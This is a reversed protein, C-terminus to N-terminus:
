HGCSVTNSTAESENMKEKDRNTCFGEFCILDPMGYTLPLTLPPPIFYMPNSRLGLMALPWANSRIPIWHMASAMCQIRNSDLAHGFAMCQIPDPHVGVTM